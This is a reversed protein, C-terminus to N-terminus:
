EFGEALPGRGINPNGEDIIGGRLHPDMLSKAKTRTEEDPLGDLWMRASMKLLNKPVDPKTSIRLTDEAHGLISCLGRHSFEAYLEEQFIATRLAATVQGMQKFVSPVRANLIPFKERVIPEEDEWHLWHFQIKREFRDLISADILNASVCRARNDGAGTTNATAVVRTGPLVPYTTGAPGDVRGLISDTVLRIYEAQSADARDFDSMLLMYPIRRGDETLFGDRLAKLVAGEEWFTGSENFSRSFMWAEIDTGPRVQRILAPIRAMHSLAHFFADKGSGPLGSVYLSRSCRVAIAAHQIDQGLEGQTPVRYHPPMPLCASEPVGLNVPFTIGAFSIQLDKPPHERRVSLRRSLKERVRPSVVEGRYKEEYDLPSMGHASVLHQGLFDPEQHGCEACTLM